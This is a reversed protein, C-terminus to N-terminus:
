KSLFIRTWTKSGCVGDVVMNQYVKRINSQFDKLAAETMAGFSGDVNGVNYGMVKLETQLLSVIDGTSGRKITPLTKAMMEVNTSSNKALMRDIENQVDNYSFGDEVCKNYRAKGNIGNDIMYQAEERLTRKVSGGLIANVKSVMDNLHDIIYQGPCITSSFWKHLTILMENSKQAYALATNKDPIYVLKTKGNRKCIDAMLQIASNYAATKIAYPSYNDSAIEITVARNDNAYSSSTGPANSEDCYLAIRGDYGIGYSSTAGRNPNAFLEGLSEVTCQGVVCHPTIRDIAHTRPGYHNNAPSLRTYSILSSNSM